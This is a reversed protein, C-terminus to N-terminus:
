RKITEIKRLNKCIFEVQGPGMNGLSDAFYLVDLGWSNLIYGVNQYDEASKNHAQMLNLGVEYGLNKLEDIIPKTQNANDFNIAVRVLSIKSKNRHKFLKGLNQKMNKSDTIFEKANIM